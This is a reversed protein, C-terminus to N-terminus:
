DWIAAMLASCDQRLDVDLRVQQPLLRAARVPCVKCAVGACGQLRLGASPLRDLLDLGRQLRRLGLHRRSAEGRSQRPM